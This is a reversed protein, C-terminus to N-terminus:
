KQLCSKRVRDKRKAPVKPTSERKEALASNMEKITQTGLSIMKAWDPSDYVPVRNNAKSRPDETTTNM